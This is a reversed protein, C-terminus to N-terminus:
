HFAECLLIFIYVEAERLYKFIQPAYEEAMLPDMEVGLADDVNLM